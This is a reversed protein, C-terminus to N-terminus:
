VGEPLYQGGRALCTPEDIALTLELVNGEADTKQCVPGNFPVSTDLTVTGDSQVRLVDGEVGKCLLVGDVGGIV